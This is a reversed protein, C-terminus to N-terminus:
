RQSSLIEDEHSPPPPYVPPSPPYPASAWMDAPATHPGRRPHQMDAEVKVLLSELVESVASDSVAQQQQQASRMHGAASAVM